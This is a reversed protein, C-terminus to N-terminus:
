CALNSITHIKEKASPPFIDKVLSTSKWNSQLLRNKYYELGTFAILFLQQKQEYKLM